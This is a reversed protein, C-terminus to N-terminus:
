LHGGRPVGDVARLHILECADAAEHSSAFVDRPEVADGIMRVEIEPRERIVHAYLANDSTRGGIVAAGVAELRSISGGRQIDAYGEGIREVTAEDILHVTPLGRLVEMMAMRGAGGKDYAFQRRPEVVHVVGGCGAIHLALFCSESDGGIIVTDDGEAWDDEPRDLASFLDFLVPSGEVTCPMLGGTAGTAIVVADSSTEDIAALGAETGLRVEVGLREIERALYTVLAGYDSAIRSSYRM